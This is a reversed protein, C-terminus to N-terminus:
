HPSPINPASSATGLEGLLSWEGANRIHVIYCLSFSRSSEKITSSANHFEPIRQTNTLEGSVALANLLKDEGRFDGM